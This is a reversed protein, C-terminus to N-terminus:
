LTSALIFLEDAQQDSIQLQKAFEILKPHNREFDNSDNWFISMLERELDNPIKSIAYDINVLNIGALVLSQKLQRKTVSFPVNLKNAEALEEDTAGEVWTEGSLKFRLFEGLAPITTSYEMNENSEAKVGLYYGNEDIQYYM